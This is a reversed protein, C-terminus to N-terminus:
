QTGSNTSPLGSTSDIQVQIAPNIADKNFIGPSPEVISSDIKDITKIKTNGNYENGLISNSIFFATLVSVSVILIIMAVDSKKM